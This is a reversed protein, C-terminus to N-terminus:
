NQIPQNPLHIQSFESELLEHMGLENQLLIDAKAQDSFYDIPDVYEGDICLEFHLHPGTSEGTSGVYGILDGQKVEDGESVIVENLHAYFTNINAYHNITVNKGDGTDADVPVIVTGSAAAYVPTGEDAKFDIGKHFNSQLHGYPASIEGEVPSALYLMFSSTMQATAERMISTLCEWLEEETCTAKIDIICEGCDVRFDFNNIEDAPKDEAAYGKMMSRVLDFIYVPTDAANCYQFEYNYSQFKFLIEKGTNEGLMDSYWMYMTKRVIEDDVKTEVYDTLGNTDGEILTMDGIQRKRPVFKGFPEINWLQGLTMGSQKFDEASYFEDITLKREILMETIEYAEKYGVDLFLLSYGYNGIVFDAKFETRKEEATSDFIDNAEYGYVEVGNIIEPSANEPFIPQEDYIPYVQLYVNNFTSLYRNPLNTSFYIINDNRGFHLSSELPDRDFNLNIIGKIYEDPLNVSYYDTHEPQIIAESKDGDFYKQYQLNEGYQKSITGKSIDFTDISLNSEIIMEIMKVAEKYGINSFDISYMQENMIFDACLDEETEYGYIEVGNLIEPTFHEEKETLEYANNIGFLATKEFGEKTKGANISFTLNNPVGNEDMYVVAGSPRYGFDFDVIEETYDNPIFVKSYILDPHTGRPLATEKDGDFYKWYRLNENYEDLETVTTIDTVETAVMDDIKMEHHRAAFFLGCVVAAAAAFPIAASFKRAPKIKQEFAEEIYKDDALSIMRELEYRTM